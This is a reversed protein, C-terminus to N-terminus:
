GGEGASTNGEQWCSRNFNKGARREGMRRDVEEELPAAELTTGPTKWRM